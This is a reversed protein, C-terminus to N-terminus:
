QIRVTIGPQSSQEGFWVMVEHDGALLGNPVIINMQFEGAVVFPVAGAYAIAAPLGGITARTPLFPRPLEEFVGPALKGDVGGPSTQGEGTGYVVVVSGATAPKVPSNMAGDQNAIAGQGKGSQDASFLSPMAPAVSMTLPASSAGQYKVVVQVSTKGHVSYPVIAASQKASVYILPAPVGDFLIQVGAVETPINGNPMPTFSTVAAPGMANGFVTVIEGAAIKGGIYSAANVVSGLTVLPVAPGIELRTAFADYDGSRHPQLANSLVGPWADGNTDGVMWVQGSATLAVDFGEDDGPTGLYSSFEAKAGDASIKIIYADSKGALTKQVADATVPYNGSDTWGTLYAAGAGDVDVALGVDDGGGGFYTAFIRKTLTADFKALYGDGWNIGGAYSTQMAGGTISLNPSDTSGTIYVNGAPDIAIGAAFDDRSGGFLTSALIGPQGNPQLGVRVIFADGYPSGGNFVRQVAGETTAFTKSTTSGAVYANGSRDLAVAYATDDGEQAGIYMSYVLGNGAANLVALFAEGRDPLTKPAVTTPFDSAFTYGAVFAQGLSNVAIAYGDDNGACGCPQPKAGGLFTSYKLEGSPGLKSVFADRNNHYLQFQNLIPFNVSETFGTIYANGDKDVAISYGHDRGSGGLITSYLINKGSPDLKVVIVDLKGRPSAEPKTPFNSSDSSGVMYVNGADDVAAHDFEDITNGGLYTSYGIVPDIVLAAARDYDGLAFTVASTGTLQFSAEVPVRVGKRMQYVVPKHQELTLGPARMQLNGAQDVSLKVEADFMLQIAGPNAGPAAVLDYELRDDNGYFVADIGPYVSSYRIRSYNPVDIQWNHPDNGSYYNSHTARPDLGEIGPRSNAGAFHMEIAGTASQFKLRQPSMLLNFRRMRGLYRVDAAAQGRNLEFSLPASAATLNRPSQSRSPGALPAAGDVTLGAALTIALAALASSYRTLKFDKM